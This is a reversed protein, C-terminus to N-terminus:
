GESPRSLVEICDSGCGEAVPKPPAPRHLVARTPVVRVGAAGAPTCTGDVILTHDSRDPPPWVVTVQPRATANALSRRGVEGITLHGQEVVASVAVVHPRCEADTTLLYAYDFQELVRALETLDVPISM